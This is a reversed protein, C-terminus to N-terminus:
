FDGNKLNTSTDKTGTTCVIQTATTSSVVCNIGDVTVTTSGDVFGTGTITIETEVSALGDAPTVNTVTPTSASSYTVASAIPDLKFGNVEV